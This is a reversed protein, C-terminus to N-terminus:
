PMTVALGEQQYYGFAQAIHFPLFAIPDVHIAIRVSRVTAGSNFGRCGLLGAALVIVVFRRM